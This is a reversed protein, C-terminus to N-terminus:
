GLLKANTGTTSDHWSVKWRYTVKFLRKCATSSYSIWKELAPVDLAEDSYSCVFGSARQLSITKGHIAILCYDQCSASPESINTDMHDTQKQLSHSIGATHNMVGGVACKAIPMGLQEARADLWSQQQKTYWQCRTRGKFALELANRYRINLTLDLGRVKSSVSFTICYSAIIANNICTLPFPDHHSSMIFKSQSVLLSVSKNLQWYNSFVVCTALCVILLHPQVCLNRTLSLSTILM